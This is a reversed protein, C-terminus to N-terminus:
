MFSGVLFKEEMQILLIFSVGVSHGTDEKIKTLKCGCSKLSLRAKEEFGAILM